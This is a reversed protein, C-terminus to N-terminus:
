PDSISHFNVLKEDFVIRSSDPGCNFLCDIFSLQPIFDGFLQPYVPSDYKLFDLQIDATKFLQEANDRLMYDEAGVSSVYRDAGLFKCINLVLDTRKGSVNLESSRLFTKSLGLQKALYKIISINLESLLIWQKEYVGKFFDSYIDFYPSKGYCTEISKWHKLSWLSSNDIEVDKIALFNSNHKIPITLWMWNQATKIKNRCQWSQREYQVSDLFVFIDSEKMIRFYGIWPLYTPQSIAVTKM